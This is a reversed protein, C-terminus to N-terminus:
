SNKENAELVKQSNKKWSFDKRYKQYSSNALNEYFTKHTFTDIIYIAMQEASATIPFRFGNVNNEISSKVGMVDYSISPVGFSSAEAYVIGFGEARTPVILFHTDKFITRFKELEAPVEKNLRGHNVLWSNNNIVEEAEGVYHIQFEFRKQALQQGIKVVTDGGKRKWDTSIFLLNCTEKRIKNKLNELHKDTYEFGILSAGRYVTRIKLSLGWREQLHLKLWDSAVIVEQCKQLAKYELKNAINCLSSNFFNKKLYNDSYSKFTNDIWCKVPINTKIYPLYFTNITFLVDLNKNKLSKQIQKAAGRAKFQDYFSNYIGKKKGWLMNYWISKLIEPIRYKLSISHYDIQVEVVEHGLALFAQNIQYPVGSRLSPNSLDWESVFAIKM